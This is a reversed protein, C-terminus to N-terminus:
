FYIFLLFSKLTSSLSKEKRKYNGEAYKVKNNTKQFATMSKKELIISVHLYVYIFYDSRLFSQIGSSM